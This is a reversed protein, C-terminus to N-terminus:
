PVALPRLLDNFFVSIARGEVMDDLIKSQIQNYCECLWHGPGHGWHCSMIDEVAVRSKPRPVLMVSANGIM